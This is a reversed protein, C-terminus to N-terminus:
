HVESGPAVDADVFVVRPVGDTESCLLMGESEIGRFAHPALNVVCIVKRGAMDEPSYQKAIGSVIIRERE